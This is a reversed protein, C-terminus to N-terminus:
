QQVVMAQGMNSPRQPQLKNCFLTSSPQPLATADIMQWAAALLQGRHQCCQVLLQQLAGTDSNRRGSHVMGRTQLRLCRANGHHLHKTSHSFCSCRTCGDAWQSSAMCSSVCSCMREGRLAGGPAPITALLAHATYLQGTPKSIKTSALGVAEPTGDASARRATRKSSSGGPRAALEACSRRRFTTLAQMAASRDTDMAAPSSRACGETDGCSCDCM